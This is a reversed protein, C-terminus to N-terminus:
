PCAIAAGNDDWFNGSWTVGGGGSCYIYDGLGFFGGQPWEGHSDGGAGVANSNTTSPATSGCYHGGLASDFTSTGGCRAIDNGTFILKSTGVSSASSCSYLIYGGGAMLNNTITFQNQCPQGLTDGFIEATQDFPNLLTNHDITIGAVQSEYIDESHSGSLIGNAVVYNNQILSGAGLGNIPEVAGALINNKVTTNPGGTILTEDVGSGTCIVTPTAPCGTATITSNEVTIGTTAGTGWLATSGGQGGGFAAGSFSLCSNNLTFNTAGNIYLLWGNGNPGSAASLNYGSITVNAGTINVMNGSLSYTGAPLDSPSWTPLASCNSVGVNAYGPDPYGCAGPASFCNLTQSGGGASATVVATRPSSAQASGAGNSATVVAVLTDGVDTSSALYSANTAGSINACNSGNSDCDQWQYAYSATSGSWTGQSVTLTQGQQATGGIAPPTTNAPAVVTATVVVDHEITAIRNAADTITLTVYKTGTGQFTFNITQGSGLPWSGGGPPDDAWSYSCPADACTSGTADFRVSQGTM